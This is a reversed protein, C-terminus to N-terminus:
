VSRRKWESCSFLNQLLECVDDYSLSECIAAGRTVMLCEMLNLLRFLALIHSNPGEQFDQLCLWQLQLPSFCLLSLSLDIGVSLPICLACSCPPRRFFRDEPVHIPGFTDREERLGSSICRSFSSSLDLSMAGCSPLLLRRAAAMTIAM